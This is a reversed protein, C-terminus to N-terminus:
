HATRISARNPYHGLARALQQHVSIFPASHPPPPGNFDQRAQHRRATGGGQCMEREEQQALKDASSAGYCGAARSLFCILGSLEGKWYGCAEDNIAILIQLMDQRLFKRPRHRGTELDAAAM